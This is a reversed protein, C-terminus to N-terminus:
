TYYCHILDSNFHCAVSPSLSPSSFLSPSLVTLFWHSFDWTPVLKTWFTVSSKSVNTKCITEGLLFSLQLERGRMLNAHGRLWLLARLGALQEGLMPWFNLRYQPVAALHVKVLLAWLGLGLKKRNLFCVYLNWDRWLMKVSICEEPNMWKSM